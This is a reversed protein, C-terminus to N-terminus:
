KGRHNLSVAGSLPTCWVRRRDIAPSSFRMWDRIARIKNPSSSLINREVDTLQWRTFRYGSLFRLNAIEQPSADAFLRYAIGATECVARTRAFSEAAREDIRTRPRVDVVMLAGSDFRVCIDPIHLRGDDWTLVFPQTCIERRGPHRDVAALASQEYLSEFWHHRRTAAAWYYGSYNKKGKWSPSSRVQHLSGVVFDGMDLADVTVRRGGVDAEVM